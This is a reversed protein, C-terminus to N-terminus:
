GGPLRGVAFLSLGIVHRFLRDVPRLVPVLRNFLTLQASPPTTRGLLRGNLWWGFVAPANFFWLRETEFGARSLADQLSARDYRRWHGIAQDMSSHLARIAPVKLIIRGGPKLTGRLRQLMAVDDEIHELVDLMMVSDFPTGLTSVGTTADAQLVTVKPLTATNQTAQEVYEPDIDISVLEHGALGLPVTYTGTGCGVELIRQGLWPRVEDLVWRTYADATGLNALWFDQALSDKSPQSTTM